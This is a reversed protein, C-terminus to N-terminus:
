KTEQALLKALALELPLEPIFSRGVLDYANLLELLTGSTINSSAAGALEKM